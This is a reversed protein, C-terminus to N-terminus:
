LWEYRQINESVPGGKKVLTVCHTGSSFNMRPYLNPEHPEIKQKQKTCWQEKTKKRDVMTHKDKKKIEPKQNYWQYKPLIQRSLGQKFHSKM